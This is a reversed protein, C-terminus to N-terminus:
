TVTYGGDIPVDAGVLFSAKDSLLWLALNAVEEPSSGRGIPHMAIFADRTEQTFSTETMNTIVYGPSISNVRIGRSAYEIAVAKTLGIVAHKSTVYACIEPLATRGVVSATNVIAGGGGHLMHPLQAQMCNFVGMLNVDQVRRFEEEPYGVFAAGAGVIGANNHAVHLGGFREVAAKVAGDVDVRRAVNGVSVAVSGGKREILGATELLGKEDLDMIMVSAGAGALAIASARGIGSAAGTVFAVKDTMDSM